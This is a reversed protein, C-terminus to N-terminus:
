LTQVFNGDNSCRNLVNRSPDYEAFRQANDNLYRSMRRQLTRAKERLSRELMRTQNESPSKLSSSAPVSVGFRGSRAVMSPLMLLRTRLAVVPAVYEECFDAYRGSRMAEYMEPGVVAVVHREEAVAIDLSSITTADFCEGDNFALSAVQEPTILTQKM